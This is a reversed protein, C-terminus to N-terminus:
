ENVAEQTLVRVEPVEEETNKSSNGVKNDEVSGNEIMKHDTDTNYRRSNSLERYPDFVLM